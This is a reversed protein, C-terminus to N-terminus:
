AELFLQNYIPKALRRHCADNKWILEFLEGGSFDLKVFPSQLSAM